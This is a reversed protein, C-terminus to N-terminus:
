LYPDHQKHTNAGPTAKLCPNTAKFVHESTAATVFLSQLDATTDSLHRSEIRHKDIKRLSYEVATLVNWFMVLFIQFSDVKQLLTELTIAAPICLQLHRDAKIKIWNKDIQVVSSITYCLNWRLKNHQFHVSSYM